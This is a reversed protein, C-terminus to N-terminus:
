WRCLQSRRRILGWVLLGTISVSVLWVEPNLSITPNTQLTDTCTSYGRLFVAVVFHDSVQTVTASREGAGLAARDIDLTGLPPSPFPMTLTLNDSYDGSEIILTLKENTTAFIQTDITAANQALENCGSFLGCSTRVSSWDTDLIGFGTENIVEIRGSVKIATQYGTQRPGVSLAYVYWVNANYDRMDTLVSIFPVANIGHTSPSLEWNKCGQIQLYNNYFFSSEFLIVVFLGIVLFAKIGIWMQHLIKDWDHKPKQEVKAQDKPTM